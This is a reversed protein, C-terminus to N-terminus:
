QPRGPDVDGAPRGEQLDLRRAFRAALELSHTVVILIREPGHLELLLDALEQATEPVDVYDRLWQLSIRM